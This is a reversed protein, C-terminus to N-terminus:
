YAMCGDMSIDRYKSVDADTVKHKARVASQSKALGPEDILGGNLSLKNVDGNKKNVSYMEYLGGIGNRPSCSIEIIRYDCSQSAPSLEEIACKSKHAYEDKVKAVSLLLNKAEESSVEDNTPPPASACASTAVLALLVLIFEVLTNKM